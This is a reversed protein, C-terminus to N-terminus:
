TANRHDAIEAAERMGQARAQATLRDLAAQASAPPTLSRICQEIAICHDQGGIIWWDVQPETWGEAPRLIDKCGYDDAVKAAAEIAATWGAAYGEAHYTADLVAMSVLNQVIQTRPLDAMLREVEAELKAVRAEAQEAQAVAADREDTLAPVLERSAAIFRANTEGADADPGHAWSSVPSIRCEAVPYGIGRYTSDDKDCHGWILTTEHEVRWPGPTVGDLLAAIAATSTDINSM